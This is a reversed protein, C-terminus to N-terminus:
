ETEKEEVLGREGNSVSHYVLSADRNRLELTKRLLRTRVYGEITSTKVHSWNPGGAVLEVRENMLLYGVTDSIFNPLSRVALINETNVYRYVRAGGTMIDALTTTTNNKKRNPIVTVGNAIDQRLSAIIENFRVKLASLVAKKNTDSLLASQTDIYRNMSTFATIRQTNSLTRTYVRYRIEKVYSDFKERSIQGNAAIVGDVESSFTVNQKGSGTSTSSSTTGSATAPKTGCIRDYYSPSYDGSPCNDKLLISGGGGGGSGGGSPAPIVPVPTSIVSAVAFYSLHDTDFICMKQVDLVCTMDPSNNQWVNGDASRYIRLSQGVAAAPVVFSVHFNGGVATISVGEAGVKVTQFIQGISYTNLATNLATVLALIDANVAAEPLNSAVLVPSLLVGNWGGSSSILSTVGSITLSGTLSDIDNPDSIVTITTGSLATTGSGGAGISVAGTETVTGGVLPVIAPTTFTGTAISTNGYTDTLHITYTYSTGSALGTLAAAGVSVVGSSFTTPYTGVVVGTSTTITISGTAYTTNFNPETFTFDLSAGTTGLNSLTVDVITPAVTDVSNIVGVTSNTTNGVSDTATAVYYYDTNALLGSVLSAHTTGFTTGTAVLTALVNAGTGISLVGTSNENTNFSYAAIMNPGVVTPSVTLGSIVPGLADQVITWTGTGVNGVADTATVNLTNLM